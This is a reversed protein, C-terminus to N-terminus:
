VQYFIKAGFKGEKFDFQSLNMLVNILRLKAKKPVDAGLYTPKNSDYETKDLYIGITDIIYWVKIDQIDIFIIDRERKVLEESYKKIYEHLEKLLEKQIWRKNTLIFANKYNKREEESIPPILNLKKITSKMYKYKHSYSWLIDEDDNIIQNIEDIMVIM